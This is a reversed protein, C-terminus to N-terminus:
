KPLIRALVAPSITWDGYKANIKDQVMLLAERRKQEFLLPPTEDFVLSSLTVGLARAPRFIGKKQGFIAKSRMFIEWGDNTPISSTKQRIFSENRSNIWLSITKGLCNNKRARQAVMESLMRLWSFVINQDYIEAPLTYSHGISKPLETTDTKGKRYTLNEDTRLAQYLWHGVTQGFNAVLIDEPATKLQDCTLIGMGALCATLAPGIGCIKEVPLGHFLADSNAENILVLGDPKRIKTGLKALIWTPAIGISCALGFAERIRKKITKGLELPPGFIPELGRIDLDFEDITAHDVFPSFEELLNFIGHSVYTYRACDCAVFEAHPCIKFAEHSPMGSTIGYAKAEYSAAAVVTRYKKDRSGVIVPKGKLCPNIQQEISAFFADMDIHMIM